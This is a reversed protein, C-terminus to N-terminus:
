RQKRFIKQWWKLKIKQKKKFDTKLANPACICLKTTAKGLSCLLAINTGVIMAFM